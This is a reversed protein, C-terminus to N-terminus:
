YFTSLRDIIVVDSYRPIQFSRMFDSALPLYKM